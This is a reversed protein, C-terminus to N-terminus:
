VRAAKALKNGPQEYLRALKGAIHTVAEDVDDSTTFRGLSFRISSDAEEESLGIARLVHSPEPTGTTCASGTSAALHPQLAGLIDHASFGAFRINVNGSHRSHDPPGNIAYEVGSDTLGQVFRDRLMRITTRKREATSQQLLEAAAAMGVCLPVPITGSRLNDQQGGGYILPEIQDHLDRRVILTGIGKPGYMKHASLSILDAHAALSSIDIACPAQAADCHFFAGCKRAIAAIEEAPQIVGIENNVAMVSILLVDEDALKQLEELRLFGQQEVPLHEIQYGHQEQLIRCAALVSKHEIASVLIRRRKGGAARRALGLLALNNAETAGSTFIIEDPGAGIFSAITAASEEVAQAAKWGLIHDVSHPNAFSEAHWPRMKELVEPDVPTSAQYDFYLTDRNKM